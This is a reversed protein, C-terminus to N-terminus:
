RLVRRRPSGSRTGVRSSRSWATSSAVGCAAGVGRRLDRSWPGSLPQPLSAPSAHRGARMRRTATTSRVFRAIVGREASPVIAGLAREVAHGVDNEWEGLACERGRDRAAEKGRAARHLPCLSAAHSHPTGAVVGGPGVGDRWRVVEHHGGTTPPYGAAVLTRRRRRSRPDRFPRPSGVRARHGGSAAPVGDRAGQFLWRWPIRRVGIARAAQPSPLCSVALPSTARGWPRAPTSATCLLPPPLDVAGLSYALLCSSARVVTALAARPLPACPQAPAPGPLTAPVGRRLPFRRRDRSLSARPDGM